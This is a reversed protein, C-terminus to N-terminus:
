RRGWRDLGQKVLDWPARDDEVARFLNDSEPRVLRCTYVLRELDSRIAATCGALDSFRPALRQFLIARQLETAKVSPTEVARVFVRASRDGLL